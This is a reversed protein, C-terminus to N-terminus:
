MTVPRVGAWTLSRRLATASSIVTVVLASRHARLGGPVGVEVAVDVDEGAVQGAGGCDAVGAEVRQAVEAPVQVVVVEAVGVERGGVAPHAQSVEGLTLVVAQPADVGVAGGKARRDPADAEVGVRRCLEDGGEGGGEGGRIAVARVMVEGARGTAPLGSRSGNRATSGSMARPQCNSRGLGSVEAMM